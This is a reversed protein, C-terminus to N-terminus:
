CEELFVDSWAPKDGNAAQAWVQYENTFNFLEEKTFDAFSKTQKFKKCFKVMRKREIEDKPIFGSSKIMLGIEFPTPERIYGLEMKAFEKIMEENWDVSPKWAQFHTISKQFLKYVGKLQDHTKTRKFPVLSLQLDSSENMLVKELMVLFQDLKSKWRLRDEKLFLVNLQM